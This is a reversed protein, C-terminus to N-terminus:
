KLCAVVANFCHSKEESKLYAVFISDGDKSSIVFWSLNSLDIAEIVFAAAFITVGIDPLAESFEKVVKWERGQDFILKETQM